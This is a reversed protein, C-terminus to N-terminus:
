DKEPRFISYNGRKLQNMNVDSLIVYRKRNSNQEAITYHGKEIVKYVIATHQPFEKWSGDPYVLKVNEFQIIDGPIIVDKKDNLKKGFEYPPSWKAGSSNLAEAALDWCEGKGVKKGMQKDCFAIIKKNLEPIETAQPWVFFTFLLILISKM